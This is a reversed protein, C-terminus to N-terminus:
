VRQRSYGALGPDRGCEGDHQLAILRHLAGPSLFSLYDATQRGAVPAQQSKLQSIKLHQKVIIVRCLTIYRLQQSQLKASPLVSKIYHVSSMAPRMFVMSLPVNTSASKSHAAQM